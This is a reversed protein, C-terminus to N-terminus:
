KIEVGDLKKDILKIIDDPLRAYHQDECYKQGDHIIWRLFKVVDKGTDKPQNRYLVAWVAGCIPYTTDGAMNTLNFCLDEPVHGALVAGRAAASVNAMDALIFKKGKNQVKGYSIKKQLAFILEVYGIAGPSKNVHAAVEPNGSKGIGLPWDIKIAGKNGVKDRWPASVNALFDTWIFTTGSPEARHVVVIKTSPLKVKPNAAQIKENNWETIKGLYIDALVAGTFNLPAEDKLDPLNYIPVVAGMTLPIHIVAGGKERAASLQEPTMPGDTCGFNYTKAIMQTIGNGSGKLAYDVEVGTEKHYASKWKQMMPGVFTSGGANLRATGSSNGSQCGNGLLVGMGALVSLGVAASFIRRKM